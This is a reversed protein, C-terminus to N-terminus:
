HSTPAAIAFEQDRVAVSGQITTNGPCTSWKKFDRLAHIRRQNLSRRTVKRLGYKGPKQTRTNICCSPLNASKAYVYQSEEQMDSARLRNTRKQPRQTRWRRRRRQRRRSPEARSSSNAARM